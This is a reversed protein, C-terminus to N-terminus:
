RTTVFPLLICPGFTNVTAAGAAHVTGAGNTLDVSNTISSCGRLTHQAQAGFGLPVADYEAVLGLESGAAPVQGTGDFLYSHGLTGDSNEFGVTASSTTGTFAPNPYAFTIHETLLQVWVQFSYIGGGGEKKANHWEVVLYDASSGNDHL